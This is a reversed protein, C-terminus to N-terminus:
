RSGSFSFDFIIDITNRNMECMDLIEFKDM